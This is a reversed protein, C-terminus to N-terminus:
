RVGGLFVACVVFAHVAYWQWNNVGIRRSGLTIHVGVAIAAGILIQTLSM